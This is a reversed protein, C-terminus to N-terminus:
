EIIIYVSLIYRYMGTPGGSHKILAEFNQLENCTPKLQLTYIVHAEGGPYWQRKFPTFGRAMEVRCELSTMMESSAHACGEGGGGALWRM